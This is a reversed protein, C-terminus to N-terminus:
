RGNNAYKMLTVNSVVGGTGVDACNTTTGSIQSAPIISGHGQYAGINPTYFRTGDSQLFSDFM